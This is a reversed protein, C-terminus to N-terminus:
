IGLSHMTWSRPVAERKEAMLRQSVSGSGGPRPEAKQKTTQQAFTTEKIFINTLTFSTYM